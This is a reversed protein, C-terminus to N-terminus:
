LPLRHFVTAIFHNTALRVCKLRGNTHHTNKAPFLHPQNQRIKKTPLNKINRFATSEVLVPKVLNSKKAPQPATHQKAQSPTIAASTARRGKALKSEGTMAYSFLIQTYFRHRVDYCTINLPSQQHVFDQQYMNRIRRIGM